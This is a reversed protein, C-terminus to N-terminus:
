VALSLIFGGIKKERKEEKKAFIGVAFTFNKV